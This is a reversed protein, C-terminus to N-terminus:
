ILHVDALIPWHDSLKRAFLVAEAIQIESPTGGTAHKTKPLTAAYAKRQSVLVSDEPLTSSQGVEGLAQSDLSARVLDFVRVKDLRLTAGGTAHNCFSTPLSIM